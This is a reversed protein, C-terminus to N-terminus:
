LGELAKKIGDVDKSADIQKQVETNTDRIVQRKAEAEEALAPVTAEIDLPKMKADRDARRTGHAIDKAKPINVTIM